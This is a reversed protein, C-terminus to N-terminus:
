GNTTKSAHYNRMDRKTLDISDKRQQAGEKTMFLSLASVREFHGCLLQVVFMTADRPHKEPGVHRVEIIDDGRYLWATDGYRLKTKDPM